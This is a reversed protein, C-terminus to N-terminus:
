RKGSQRWLNYKLSGEPQTVLTYSGKCLGDEFTAYGTETKRNVTSRRIMAGRYTKHNYSIM